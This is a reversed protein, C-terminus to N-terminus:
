LHDSWADGRTVMWVDLNPSLGHKGNPDRLMLHINGSLPIYGARLLGPRFTLHSVTLLLADYSLNRAWRRASALVGSLAGPCGPDLLLDVVTGIVLGALRPDDLREPHQVVALGVLEAGRRCVAFAYRSNGGREYRWRLYAGSREACCSVGLRARAWLGDIEAASPLHDALEITLARAAFTSPLRLAAVGLTMFAQAMYAIPPIRAIKLGMSLPKPVGKLLQPDIRRLIRAIRLPEIYNRVAGLDLMGLAVSLRRPVLAAPMSAALGVHRLMEKLLLYGILGDRFQELVWFGKLWHATAFEGGNWFRTPISTLCAVLRTGIFVGVVPPETGPEFPNQAASARLWEVVGDPTANANWDAARMFEAIAAADAESLRRAKLPEPM